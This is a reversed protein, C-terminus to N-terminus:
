CQRVVRFGRLGTGRLDSRDGTGTGPVKDFVASIEFGSAHTAIIHGINGCGLLGIKIM